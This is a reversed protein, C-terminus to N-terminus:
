LATIDDPDVVALERQNTALHNNGAKLSGAVDTDGHVLEIAFRTPAGAAITSVVTHM